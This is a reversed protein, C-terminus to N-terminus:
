CRRRSSSTSPIERLFPWHIFSVGPNFTSDDRFIQPQSLTLPAEGILRCYDFKALNSAKEMGGKYFSFHDLMPLNFVLVDKAIIVFEVSHSLLVYLFFFLSVAFRLIENDYKKWERNLQCIRHVSRVSSISYHIFLIIYFEHSRSSEDNCLLPVYFVSRANFFNEHIFLNQWEYVAAEDIIRNENQKSDLFDIM